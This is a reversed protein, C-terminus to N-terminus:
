NEIGVIYSISKEPIMYFKENIKVDIDSFLSFIIKQKSLKLDGYGPSYRKTTKIDKDFFKEKLYNLSENALNEVLISAIKDLYYIETIKQNEKKNDFFKQFCSGLTCIVIFIDTSNKLLNKLDLSESILNKIIEDSIKLRRYYFKPDLNFLRLDSLVNSLVKNEIDKKLGLKKTFDVGEIIKNSNVYIMVKVIIINFKIFYCKTQQM